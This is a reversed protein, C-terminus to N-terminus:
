TYARGICSLAICSCPLLDNYMGVKFLPLIGDMFYLLVGPPLPGAAKISM